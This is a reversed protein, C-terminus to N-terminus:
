SCLYISAPIRARDREVKSLRQKRLQLIRFSWVWAVFNIHPHLHPHSCYLMRFCLKQEKGDSLSALNPVPKSPHASISCSPFLFAIISFLHASTYCQLCIHVHYTQPVPFVLTVQINPEKSIYSIVDARCRLFAEGPCLLIESCSLPPPICCHAPFVRKHATPLHIPNPCPASEPQHFGGKGQVGSVRSLTWLLLKM